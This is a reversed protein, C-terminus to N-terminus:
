QPYCSRESDIGLQGRGRRVVATDSKVAIYTEPHSEVPPSPPRPPREPMYGLRNIAQKKRGREQAASLGHQSKVRRLDEPLPRRAMWPLKAKSERCHIHWLHNDVEHRAGGSPRHQQPPTRPSRTLFQGYCPAKIAIIWKKDDSPRGKEVM